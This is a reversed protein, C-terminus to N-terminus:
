KLKKTNIKRILTSAIILIIVGCSRHNSTPQLCSSAVWPERRMWESITMTGEESIYSGRDELMFWLSSRKRTKIRLYAIGIEPLKWFFTEKVLYRLLLCRQKSDVWDKHRTTILMSGPHGIVTVRTGQRTLGIDCGDEHVLLTCLCWILSVNLIIRKHSLM